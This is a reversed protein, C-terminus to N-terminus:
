WVICYCYGQHSIVSQPENLFKVLHLHFIIWTITFQKSVSCLYLENQLLEIHDTVIASESYCYTQSHGSASTCKM